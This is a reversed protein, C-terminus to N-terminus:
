NRFFGMEAFCQECHDGTHGAFCDCACRGDALVHAIGHAVVSRPDDGACLFAGDCKVVCRSGDDAIDVVSDRVPLDGAAGRM